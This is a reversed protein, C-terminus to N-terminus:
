RTVEPFQRVRLDEPWEEPDNGKRNPLHIRTGHDLDTFAAFGPWEGGEDEYHAQEARVDRGLQKLFFSVHAVQCQDRISRAWEIWFPRAGNGSEGGVVVWDLRLTSSSVYGHAGLAPALNLPGLLPEASIWRVAAPSKLLLPIREDATEQNEVSV